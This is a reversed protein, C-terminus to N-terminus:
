LLGIDLEGGSELTLAIDVEMLNRASCLSDKTRRM